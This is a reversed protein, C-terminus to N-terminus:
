PDKNANYQLVVYNFKMSITLYNNGLDSIAIIAECGELDGNLFNERVEMGSISGEPLKSSQVRPCGSTTRSRFSIENKVGWKAM